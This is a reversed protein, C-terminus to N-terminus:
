ECRHCHVIDSEILIVAMQSDTLRSLMAVLELRVLEPVDRPNRMKVVSGKEFHKSVFSPLMAISSISKEVDRIDRMREGRRNCIVFVLTLSPVVKLRKRSVSQDLGMVAVILSIRTSTGLSPGLWSSTLFSAPLQEQVDFIDRHCGSWLAERCLRFREWGLQYAKTSNTTM